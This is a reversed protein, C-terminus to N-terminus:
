FYGHFQGSFYRSKASSTLGTELSKTDVEDVNYSWMVDVGPIFFCRVGVKTQNAAGPLIAINTNARAYVFTFYNERWMRTLTDLTIVGGQRFDDHKKNRVVSLAELNLTFRSIQAGATFSHMETDIPTADTESNKTLWFSYTLSAGLTVFRLGANAGVGKTDEVRDGVDTGIRKQILHLNFNPVNPATGISVAKFLLNQSSSSGTLGQAVMKQSFLTHDPSVYGFQPRYYGFTVWTNYPLDDVMGYLSKTFAQPVQPDVEGSQPTGNYRGEYVLHYREYFPRYHIGFDASMIFRRLDKNAGNLPKVVMTRVEGGGDIKTAYKQRYPDDEPVVRLFDERNTAITEETRSDNRDYDQANPYHADSEVLPFGKEQFSSPAAVGPQNSRYHQKQFNATSKHEGKGEMVFSRLWRNENWKGYYSRMGGGNPSVHCGQCSLSCRRESPPVNVRGPAHCGACNQAFRTSLWPEARLVTTIMTAAFLLFFLRLRPLQRM